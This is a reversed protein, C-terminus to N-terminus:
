FRLGVSVRFTRPTQFGTQSIPKGFNPGRQWHVGEVPTTTFPNFTQCPGAIGAGGGNACSRTGTNAATFISQDLYRTDTTDVGSAKFLNLIQPNVFLGVGRFKFSYNLALDTRLISNTRFADRSTFFYTVRTPPSVYGPNAIFTPLIRILGSAGYALGSTYSEIVSVSIAQRDSSLVNYVGYFSAKHRQDAALDGSPRNWRALKYEPYTLDGTIPGNNRTEGDFNGRLHSFTYNGGLNLHQGARYRFSTQIADYSREFASDNNEILSLDVLSGTASRVTGTSLDGRQAYFDAWDRHIYDARFSGSSGLQRSVGVSYEQVNPSDLSQRIQVNGGPISTFIRFSTDSPGGISNFWAFLTRLADDQSVPNAPNGTNVNPGGYAWQFTAPQGAVSTSDGVGNALAAVYTGYSANFVWRGDGKADWTAALRPSIKSDKAVKTGQANKGDNKDYRAGLNLSLRDNLRWRDNVYLADTVFNTGNSSQFIPNFQIVTNSDFVPFINTGAIIAQTGFVRYDSGSQHNDSIRIDNYHDYGGVLDHSGASKTTLFYSMKALYNENNRGENKCVGCFTASHYRANGRSQDLLLTGLILDTSKAGAGVFTFERKSYQGEILLNPTLVGSYNISKLEQPTERNNLSKTDLITGFFDGNQKDDIKIYSAILRHSESASLTLKGEYRKQDQEVQFPVLTPAATNQTTNTDFKRGALFFWLRDKLIPGGLTAEYTPIVEDTQITTRSTKASWDQNTFSTRFSGSFDNGGSKTVVNVVGGSFRGYEASVGATSSTTEQVADEIFLDFAQGRINENAVVGNILFLNEFSPAGSLTISAIGTVSSKAPGTASVGPALNAIESISRGIPLEDVLKKTYTTAAQSNGSITEYSGEGTVVIEETIASITMPVDLQLSQAAALAVNRTVKEMGEFEFTVTYDGSPLSPLLYDGNAATVTTRRGQLNDSTVTVTAGALGEGENTVKGTLKGTPVGQALVPAALLLACVIGTLALSFRRISM